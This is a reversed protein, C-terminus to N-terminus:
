SIREWKLVGVWRVGIVKAAGGVHARKGRWPVVSFNHLPVVGDSADLSAHLKGAGAAGVVDASEVEVGAVAIEAGLGGCGDVHVGGADVV